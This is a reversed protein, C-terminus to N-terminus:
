VHHASPILDAVYIITLKDNLRIEPLMMSETHGYSFRIKIDANWQYGPVEPVYNLVGADKLPVFNEKLFSARERANPEYAWDYHKQTTWYKANQFAPSLNGN